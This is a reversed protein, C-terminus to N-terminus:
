CSSSCTNSGNLYDFISVISSNGSNTALGIVGYNHIKKIEESLLRIKKRKRKLTITKKATKKIKQKKRKQLAKVQIKM